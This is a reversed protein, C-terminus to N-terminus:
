PPATASGRRVVAHEGRASLLHPAPIDGAGALFQRTMMAATEEVGLGRDAMYVIGQVVIGRYM